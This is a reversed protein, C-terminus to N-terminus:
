RLVMMMEVMQFREEGQNADAVMRYLYVGVPLNGASVEVEHLGAPLHEDLLTEIKQGFHDFIEIKINAPKSLDFKITTLTSFPNPYNQYLLPVSSSESQINNEFGTINEWDLVNAWIDYGTQGTYNDQWATFIRNDSLAVSPFSQEFENADPIRFNNCLPEGNSLFQQAFVDYDGNRMDAWSIIFDGNVKAAVSPRTQYSIGTDDNVQLSLGLPIGENSFRRCFIDANENRYDQWAVTFNGSADAAVSAGFQWDSFTSEEIKFNSGVPTGDSLFRQLWIEWMGNRNDEWVIVFDGESDVAIDPSEQYTDDSNNNVRFNEGVPLGDVSFMQAWIDPESYRNEIIDNKWVDEKKYLKRFLGNDLSGEDADSWCIIFEGNPKCAVVPYYNMAASLYSVRFNNGIPTGDGSFRQAYIEYCGGTRFDAWTIIFCGDVFAAVTPMLAYNYLTDDDVRFNDGQETGDGSFRQAYIGSNETRYDVWALIFNGSSDVAMSPSEQNESGEDDNVRSNEGVLSGDPTYSQAFVDGKFGNRHDEWTIIFNGNKDSSIGSNNQYSITTDTNVKFDDGLPTGDNSFRRAYVDYFEIRNDEWCVVFNGESDSSVSPNGQSANPTDDNIKFNDGLPSGDNLFRQAYIDFYGNRRDEWAIIFNQNGDIAIDPLITVSEGIDTNVKFNNGLATGDSSFRQAYIDQNDSNRKDVWCVIFNGFKDEYSTPWYHMVNGTDDNIRFNTGLANGDNAYRQGYIDWEGNRKDAWVIVFNGSSDISASALVQDEDGPDDNVKFNSGLATGDNSFRQAYIDWQNDNKRDDWTIVFNLNQNVAVAPRYQFAYSNDDNVKFNSGLASSDSLVIQAYIDFNSGNRNDKWTIVYNGNGDGDIYPTSQESGDIGTQENVLFDPINQAIAPTKYFILPLLLLCNFLVKTKM